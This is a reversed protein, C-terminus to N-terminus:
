LKSVIGQFAARSLGKTLINALQGSTSTFPTCILGSNLKEEIIDDVYVLLATVRRLTSHKVFSTHNGQSQKYGMSLMVNTFRVLWARPSQKLKYLAKKLKCAMNEDKSFNFIGTSGGYLNRRLNVLYSSMRKM